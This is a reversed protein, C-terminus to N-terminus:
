SQILSPEVQQTIQLKDKEVQEARLAAEKQRLLKEAKQKDTVPLLEEWIVVRPKTEYDDYLRLAFGCDRGKVVKPVHFQFLELCRRFKQINSMTGLTFGGSWSALVVPPINQNKLAIGNRVENARDEDVCLIGEGTQELNLEPTIRIPFVVFLCNEGEHQIPENLRFSIVCENKERRQALEERNLVLTLVQGNIKLRTTTTMVGM